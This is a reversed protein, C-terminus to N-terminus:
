ARQKSKMAEKFRTPEGGNMDEAVMLVYSIMDAIGYKKPVKIVRRERNKTLQYGELEAHKHESQDKAEYSRESDVSEM